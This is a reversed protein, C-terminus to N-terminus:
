QIRGVLTQTFRDVFSKSQNLLNDMTMYDDAVSANETPRRLRSNPMRM